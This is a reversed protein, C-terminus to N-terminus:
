TRYSMLQQIARERAIWRSRSPDCALPELFAIVDRGVDRWSRVGDKPIHEGLPYEPVPEGHLIRGVLEVLEDRADFLVLRGRPACRAAIDEVLGSRRAVVTRGYALGSVIPFGFGEYHSPFVICRATAYLRHLEVDPLDGSHYTTVLPSVASAPGLARIQQFPFAAALTDVTQPVDKHDLSNGIVFIFEGDSGGMLDAHTYEAPDLSFHTVTNAMAPGGQFRKAFRERTFESDFLLGDAYERLFQWLGEIHPPAWYTIDWAITDLMLFTNFLSVNHLHVIEKIHWPQSPRFAVTFRRDPLETYVPWDGFTNQLDHFAAGEPNALIAVDWDPNLHRIGHATGLVAQSTGNFFPPVNRADLLLSPRTHHGRRVVSVYAREFREWSAGRSEHWSRALDPSLRRLLTDDQDSLAGPNMTDTHCTVHEIAVVARNCLVTRFGCRRASVMYHVMAGDIREFEPRLPGFNALVSPKILVCATAIEAILETEPIDALIRRPVWPATNSGPRSLGLICCLDACAVRPVSFGFMPDSQLSRDLMAIAESSVDVAGLMLLLPLRNRGAASLRDSLLTVPSETERFEWGDCKLWAQGKLGGHRLVVTVRSRSGLHEPSRWRSVLRRLDTGGLDVRSLDVFVELSPAASGTDSM